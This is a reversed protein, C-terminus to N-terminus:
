GDDHEIEDKWGETNMFDQLIDKLTMVSKGTATCLHRISNIRSKM